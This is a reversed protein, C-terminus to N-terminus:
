ASAELEEFGKGNGTRLGALWTRRDGAWVLLLAMIGYFPLHGVLEVWNFVTLTLNFPLWAVVITERVFIGSVLLLGVVLEVGGAALMFNADDMPIGLAPTFNLPHRELFALALSLNALKETFAVAIFSLGAGIRLAPVAFRALSAPPELRPFIMRDISYPGRGALFFFAAFGLIHANELMAVPSSVFIGLIWLLALAVAAPRALGGYFFSLAVGTQILGLLYRWAGDLPVNPAFLTGSVGAILLPVALHVGLILPVLSYLRRRGASTTGFLEPGPLIGRGGLARWLLYAASVFLVSATLYWVVPVTFAQGLRAQHGTADVFWKEHAAACSSLAAAAVLAGRKM